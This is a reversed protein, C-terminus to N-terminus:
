LKVEFEYRDTEDPFNVQVIGKHYVYNFDLIYWMRDVAKRM